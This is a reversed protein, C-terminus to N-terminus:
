KGGFLKKNLEERATEKEEAERRRRQESLAIRTWFLIPPVAAVAAAIAIAPDIKAEFSSTAATADLAAEILMPLAKPQIIAHRSHQLQPTSHRPTFHDLSICPRRVSLLCAM